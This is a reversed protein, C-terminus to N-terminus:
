AAPPATLELNGDAVLQGVNIGSVGVLNFVATFDTGAGDTNVAVATSGGTANLRVFSTAVDGAGFDLVDSLDLVDGGPGTAFDLVRDVGQDVADISLTDSGGGGVLTDVDAGGNLLDDGPGGRLVDQGFNGALQDNGPGGTLQDPGQNGQFRDNGPGGFMTDAGLGGILQDNGTAAVLIDNGANGTLVDNGDGGRLNDNGALGRLGENDLGGILTDAAATGVLEPGREGAQFLGQVQAQSLAQDYVVFEDISGDFFRFLDGPQDIPTGAANRGSEAGVVLPELNGAGPAGFQLGGTYGDTDVLQGNLYLDMGEAGFTFVMHAAVGAQVRADGPDNGRVSHNTTVDGLAVFVEGNRVAGAIHGGAGQGAANKAFLTHDGSVTDATFWVEISGSSLLLQNQHPVIVHGTSGDLRVAGNGIPGPAGLTFGERYQGDLDDASDSAITGATENLRLHMLAPLSAVTASYSQLTAM